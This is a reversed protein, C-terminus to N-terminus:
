VPVGFKDRWETITVTEPFVRIPQRDFDDSYFDEIIGKKWIIAYYKNEFQVISLLGDRHTTSYFERNKRDVEYESILFAIEDESLRKENELKQSLTTRLDKRYPDGM